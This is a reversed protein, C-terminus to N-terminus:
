GGSTPHWFTNRGFQIWNDLDLTSNM